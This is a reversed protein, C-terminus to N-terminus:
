ATAGRSNCRGTSTCTLCRLCVLHLPQSLLPQLPCVLLILPFPTSTAIRKSSVDDANQILEHLIGVGDAYLELINHLRSTLSEHQGFAEVNEQGLSLTDANRTILWRRLSQAGLRQAVDHAVDLHVRRTRASPMAAPVPPMGGGGGSGEGGSLATAGPVATGDTLWPADDYMLEHAPALIGARDPLYVTERPLPQHAPSALQQAIALCLQLDDRSLPAVTGGGGSGGGGKALSELLQLYQGAEIQPRVGLKRLLGDFCQLGKPVTHLHPALNLPSHLATSAPRVFSEGSWICPQESLAALVAAAEGGGEGAADSASLATELAKYLTPVAVAM